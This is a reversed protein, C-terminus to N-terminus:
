RWPPNAHYKTVRRQFNSKIDSPLTSLAAFVNKAFYFSVNTVVSIENLILFFMADNGGEYTLHQVNEENESNL